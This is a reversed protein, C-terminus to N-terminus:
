ILSGMLLLWGGHPLGSSLWTCRWSCAARFPCSLPIPTTRGTSGEKHSHLQLDLVVSLIDIARRLGEQVSPSTHLRPSRCNVYPILADWLIATHPLKRTAMGAGRFGKAPTNFELTPAHGMQGNPNGTTRRKPLSVKNHWSFVRDSCALLQGTTVASVEKANAVCLNLCNRMLQTRNKNHHQWQGM